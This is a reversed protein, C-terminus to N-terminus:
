DEMSSSPKGMQKGDSLYRWIAEIQFSPDGEFEKCIAKGGPWYAPMVTNPSFQEPALMYHYFWDKKLRDAM